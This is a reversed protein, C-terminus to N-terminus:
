PLFPNSKGKQGEDLLPIKKAIMSELKSYFSFDFDRQSFIPLSGGAEVHTIPLFGFKITIDASLSGSSAQEGESSSEMPKSISLSSIENLMEMKYIQNLFMKINEYKGIISVEAGVTKIKALPKPASTTLSGPVASSADAASLNSEPSSSAAQGPQVVSEKEETIAIKVFALGSDTALYNLGDIIKEESKQSPFFSLMFNEKDKNKDLSSELAKINNKKEITSNLADKSSKIEDMKTRIDQVAPWIYWISIVIALLFSIPAFIVKLRM